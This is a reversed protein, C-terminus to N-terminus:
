FNIEINIRSSELQKESQTKFSYSAIEGATNKSLAELFVLYREVLLDISDRSFLDKRYELIFNSGNSIIWLDYKVQETPVNQVKATLNENIRFEDHALDNWTFGTNIFNTGREGREFELDRLILDIPYMQNEFANSLKDQVMKIITEFNENQHLHLRIPLLNVYYGLQDELNAHARGAFPVGLIIDTEATQLNLFSFFAALHFTFETVNLKKAIKKISLNAETNLFFDVKGGQNDANTQRLYDYNLKLPRLYGQLENMWYINTIANTKIENKLWHSYEKYQIALPSSDVVQKKLISNYNASIEEILLQLSWADSIIHHIVFLFAYHEDGLCVLKAKFLPGRFLDFAFGTTQQIENKLVLEKDTNTSFDEYGVSFQFASSPIIFQKINKEEDEKFVTRLIEHKPIVLYFAEKFAEIDFKGHFHYVAPINYAIEKGKFQSVMWLSKQAYSMEYSTANPVADISTYNNSFSNKILEAQDKLVSYEFLKEFSVTVQFQENIKNILQGLKISHGGLSFFDDASSITEVGLVDKWILALTKEIRGTPAILGNSIETNVNIDPLAEKDTKGNPSLPIFPVEVYYQPIMYGPLINQLYEKFDNKSIGEGGTYYAVLIDTGKFHKVVVVVQKVTDSIQLLSNEIEELEIRYGRLKVQYDKRGLYEINGDPFWKVLDGTDYM